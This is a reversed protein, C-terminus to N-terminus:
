TGRATTAVPTAERDRLGMENDDTGMEDPVQDATRAPATTRQRPAVTWGSLFVACRAISMMSLLGSASSRSCGLCARSAAILPHEAVGAVPYRTRREPSHAAGRGRLHISRHRRIINSTSPNAQASLTGPPPPPHRRESQWGDDPRWARAIHRDGRRANTPTASTTTSAGSGCCNVPTKPPSNNPAALPGRASRSTQATSSNQSCTSHRPCAPWM